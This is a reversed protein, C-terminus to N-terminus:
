ARIMEDDSPIHQGPPLGDGIIEVFNRDRAMTPTFGLGNHFTRSFHSVDAYGMIHAVETISLDPRQVLLEWALRLRAWIQYSRFSLGLEQTFLHSLRSCSVGLDAALQEFPYDIDVDLKRMVWPIRLDIPPVRKADVLVVDLLADMLDCASDLLAPGSCVDHMSARLHAFSGADMLTLADNLHARAMRFRPHIVHLILTILPPGSSVVSHQMTPPIVVAQAQGRYDGAELDFPTGDATLRIVVDHRAVKSVKAQFATSMSATAGQLFVRRPGIGVAAKRSDAM